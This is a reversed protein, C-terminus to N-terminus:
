GPQVPDFFIHCLLGVGAHGNCSCGELLSLLSTLIAEGGRWCVVARVVASSIMPAGACACKGALERDIGRMTGQMIIHSCRVAQGKCAARAERAMSILPGSSQVQVVSKGHTGLIRHPDYLYRGHVKLSVGHAYHHALLARGMAREGQEEGEIHGQKWQSEACAQTSPLQPTRM